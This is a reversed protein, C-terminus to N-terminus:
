DGWSLELVETEPDLGVDLRRAAGVQFDGEISTSVDIGSSEGIIHIEISHFGKPVLLTKEV